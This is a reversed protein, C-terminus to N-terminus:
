VRFVRELYSVDSRWFMVEIENEMIMDMGLEAWPLSDM